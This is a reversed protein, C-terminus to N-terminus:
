YAIIFRMVWPPQSLLNGILKRRKGVEQCRFPKRFILNDWFDMRITFNEDFCTKLCGWLVPYFLLEIQALM